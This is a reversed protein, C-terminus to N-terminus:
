PDVHLQVLLNVTLPHLKSKCNRQWVLLSNLLVQLCDMIIYAGTYNEIYVTAIM